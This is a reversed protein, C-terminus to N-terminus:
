FGDIVDVAVLYAGSIAIAQIDLVAFLKDSLLFSIEFRLSASDCLKEKAGERRRKRFVSLM